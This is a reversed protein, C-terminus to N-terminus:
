LTRTEPEQEGMVPYVPPQLVSIPGPLDWGRSFEGECDGDGSVLHFPNGPSGPQSM